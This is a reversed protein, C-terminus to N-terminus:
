EYTLLISFEAVKGLSVEQPRTAHQLCNGFVNMFRQTTVLIILLFHLLENIKM